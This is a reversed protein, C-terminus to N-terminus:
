GVRVPQAVHFASVWSLVIQDGHPALVQRLAEILRAQTDPDLKLFPSYTQLLMLYQETSYNTEVVEHGVLVNRFYGSEVAMQGMADVMAFQAAPDEYRDLAPAYAQYVQSLEQHMEYTPQLEKNWLMILFGEPQLTAAVKPYAVEPAIWHLSSAAVVADFTQPMLSWEEFACNRIAVHPYGNCNRQAIAWFQPNPELALISGVLPAFATTATAPGCGIELITSRQSLNACQAVQRIVGSPYRPRVQDYANAAASYWIKRQELAKGYCEQQLMQRLNHQM